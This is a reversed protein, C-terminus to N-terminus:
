LLVINTIVLITPTPELIAFVLEVLPLLLLTAMGSGLHKSRREGSYLRLSTRLRCCCRRAASTTATTSSAPLGRPWTISIALAIAFPSQSPSPFALRYLYRLYNVPNTHQTSCSICFM